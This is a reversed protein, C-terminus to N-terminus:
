CRKRLPVVREWIALAYGCVSRGYVLMRSSSAPGNRYVTTYLSAMRYGAVAGVICQGVLVVCAAGVPQNKASRALISSMGKLVSFIRLTPQDRPYGNGCIIM